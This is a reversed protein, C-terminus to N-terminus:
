RRLARRDLAVTRIGVGNITVTVSSLVPDLLPFLDTCISTLARSLDIPPAEMNFSIPHVGIGKAYLGDEFSSMWLDGDTLEETRRKM